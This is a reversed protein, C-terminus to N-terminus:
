SWVSAIAQAADRLLPGIQKKAMEFTVKKDNCIVAYEKLRGKLEAYDELPEAKWQPANRVFFAGAPHGLLRRYLRVKGAMQRNTIIGTIFIMKMKEACADGFRVLADANRSQRFEPLVYNWLESLHTDDSYYMDALTLCTSAEPKGLPGIVGLIVGERDYYKQILAAVKDENLSFLGNEEWLRKCMALIAPADEVAALRVEPLERAM